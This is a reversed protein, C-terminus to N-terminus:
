YHGGHEPLEESGPKGAGPDIGRARRRHVALCRQFHPHARQRCGPFTDPRYRRQAAQLRHQRKQGREFLYSVGLDFQASNDIYDSSFNSPSSSPCSSRTGLFCQTPACIPPQNGRSREQQITTQAALLNHNHQLAMRIADDLSILPAGPSRPWRIPSRRLLTKLPRRSPAPLRSSFCRHWPQSPAQFHFVCLRDVEHVPSFHPLFAAFSAAPEDQSCELLM